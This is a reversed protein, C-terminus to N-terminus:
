VRTRRTRSLSCRANNPPASKARGMAPSVAAQRLQDAKGSVTSFDAATRQRLGDGGAGKWAISQSQNRMTLFVDDWQDATKSWYSAADTLPATSWARIQSLTVAM